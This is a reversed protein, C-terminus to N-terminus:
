VVACVEVTTTNRACAVVNMGQETLLKAVAYGIGASAGTVLATRGKWREMGHAVAMAGTCLDTSRSVATLLPVTIQRFGAPLARTIVKKIKTPM